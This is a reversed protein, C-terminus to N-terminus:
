SPWCDSSAPDPTMIGQHNITMTACATDGSQSGTGRATITFTGATRALTLTYFGEPSTTNQLSCNTYSFATSKCREMTQAEALLALRGDARRSSQVWKGYSPYAIAALIGIIAVVILVEILTFGVIASRYALPQQSPSM